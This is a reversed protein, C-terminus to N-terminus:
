STYKSAAEDVESLQAQVDSWLNYWDLSGRAVWFEVKNVIGSQRLEEDAFTLYSIQHSSGNKKPKLM